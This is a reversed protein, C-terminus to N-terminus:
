QHYKADNQPKYLPSINVSKAGESRLFWLLDMSERGQLYSFRKLVALLNEVNM